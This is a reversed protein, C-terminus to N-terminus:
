RRNDCSHSARLARVNHIHPSTYGGDRNHTSRVLLCLACVVERHLSLPRFQRNFDM